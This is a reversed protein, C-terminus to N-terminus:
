SLTSAPHNVPDHGILLMLDMSECAVSLFHISTTGPKLSSCSILQDIESFKSFTMLRAPLRDPTMAAACSRAVPRRRIVTLM